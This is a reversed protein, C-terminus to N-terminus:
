APPSVDQSKATKLRKSKAATSAQTPASAAPVTELAANGVGANEDANQEKSERVTPATVAAAGSLAVSGFPRVGLQLQATATIVGGILAAKWVFARAAPPASLRRTVFWAAGLLVTSHIAYTLLWALASTAFTQIM